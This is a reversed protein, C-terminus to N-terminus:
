NGSEGEPVNKIKRAPNGAVVSMPEVNRIVVSGAAVIAGRGITVGPVITVNSGLWVDDEIRVPSVNHIGRERPNFGHNITAITARHGILCNDGIFIGGQDQFCCCSNIFVNEGLHINKGFDSYFPPFLRFSEPVSRGTLESMLMRIEAPSHWASNLDAQIRLAEDSYEHMIQYMETGAVLAKGGNLWALLDDLKKNDM